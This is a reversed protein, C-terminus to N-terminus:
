GSEGPTPTASSRNVHSPDRDIQGARVGHEVLQAGLHAVPQPRDDMLPQGADASLGKEADARGATLHRRRAAYWSTAVTQTAL